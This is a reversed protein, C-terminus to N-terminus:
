PADEGHDGVGLGVALAALMAFVLLTVAIWGLVEM